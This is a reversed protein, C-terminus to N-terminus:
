SELGAVVKRDNQWAEGAAVICSKGMTDTAVLTWSGRLSVFLEFVQSGGALGLSQRNEGFKNGLAKTIEDHKACPGALAPGAVAALAAIAFAITRM